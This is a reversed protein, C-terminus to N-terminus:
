GRSFTLKKLMRMKDNDGLARKPAIPFIVPSQEM